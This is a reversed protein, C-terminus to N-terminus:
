NRIIKTGCHNCFYDDAGIPNGCQTCFRPTTLDPASQQVTPAPQPEPQPASQQVTPAPNIPQLEPQTIPAQQVPPVPNVSPQQYPNQEPIPAQEPIPNQEYFPEPPMERFDPQPQTPVPEFPNQEQIQQPNFGQAIPAPQVPIQEVPATPPFQQAPVGSEDAPTPVDVRFRQSINKIYKSYQMALIGAIVTNSVSIVMSVCMVAIQTGNLTFIESNSFGVIAIITSIVGLAAQIFCMVGYFM